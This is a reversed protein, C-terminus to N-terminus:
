VNRTFFRDISFFGPGFCFVILSALLFNFPAQSIFTEPDQFIHILAEKHATALATCLIVILPISMLRAGFGIALCLGGVTELCAVLYAQAKPYPISLSQFFEVVMQHNHFKGLGTQIFAIGWYLRIALLLLPQLANGFRIIFSYFTTM